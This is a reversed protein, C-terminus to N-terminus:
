IQFYISIHFYNLLRLDINKKYLRKTLIKVPNVIKEDIDLKFYRYFIIPRLDKHFNLYLYFFM